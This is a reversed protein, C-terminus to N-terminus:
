RPLGEVDGAALGRELIRALDAHARDFDITEGGVLSQVTVGAMAGLIVAAVADPDVDSRCSGREVGARVWDRGYARFRAYM